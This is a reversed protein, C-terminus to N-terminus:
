KINLAPRIYFSSGMQYLNALGRHFHYVHYLPSQSTGLSRLPLWSFRGLSNDALCFVTWCFSSIWTRDIQRVKHWNYGRYRALFAAVTRHVLQPISQGRQRDDRRGIIRSWERIRDGFRETNKLQIHILNRPCPVSNFAFSLSLHWWLM